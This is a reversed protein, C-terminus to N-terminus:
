NDKKEPSTMEKREIEKFSDYSFMLLRKQVMDEQM